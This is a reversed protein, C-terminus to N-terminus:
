RKFSHPGAVAQQITSSPTQLILQILCPSASITLAKKGVVALYSSIPRLCFRARGTSLMWTSELVFRRLTLFAIQKSSGPTKDSGLIKDIENLNTQIVKSQGVAAQLVERIDENSLLRPSCIARWRQLANGYCAKDESGPRLIVYKKTQIYKFFRILKGRTPYKRKIKNDIAPRNHDFIFTVSEPTLEVIFKIYEHAEKDKLLAQKVHVEELMGTGVGVAPIVEALCKVFALRTMLFRILPYVDVKSGKIQRIRHDSPLDQFSQLVQRAQKRHKGTLTSLRKGNGAL